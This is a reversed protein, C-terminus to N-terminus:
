VSPPEPVDPQKVNRKDGKIRVEIKGPRDGVISLNLFCADARKVSPQITKSVRPKGRLPVFKIKTDDTKSCQVSANSGTIKMKKKNSTIIVKFEDPTVMFASATIGPNAKTQSEVRTLLKASAFAPALFACLVTLFVVLRLRM